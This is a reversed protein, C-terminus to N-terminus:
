LREPAACNVTAKRDGIELALSRTFSLIAGKAATYHSFDTSGKYALQSAINIISGYDSDYMLPLVKRASLFYTALETLMSDVDTESSVDGKVVIGKGGSLVIEELVSEAKSKDKEYPSNIAVFAGLSAFGKVVGRGIGSCTGKVLVIKNKFEGSSIM